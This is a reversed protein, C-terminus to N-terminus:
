GQGGTPRGLSLCMVACRASEPDAHYGRRMRSVADDRDRRAGREAAVRAPKPAMRSQDSSASNV